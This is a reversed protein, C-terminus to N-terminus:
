DVDYVLSIETVNSQLQSLHYLCVSTQRLVENHRRRCKKLGFGFETARQLMESEKGRATSYLSLFTSLPVATSRGEPLIVTGDVSYTEAFWVEKYLAFAMDQLFQLYLQPSKGLILTKLTSIPAGLQICSDVPLSSIYNIYESYAVHFIVTGQLRFPEPLIEISTDRNLLCSLSGAKVSYNTNRDNM